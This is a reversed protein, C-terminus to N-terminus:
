ASFFRGSADRPPALRASAVITTRLATASRKRGPTVAQTAFPFQAGLKRLDERRAFRTPLPVMANAIASPLTGEERSRWQSGEVASRATGRGM